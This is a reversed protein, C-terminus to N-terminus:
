LRQFDMTLSNWTGEGVVGDARLNRRRQYAMVAKKTTDGFVGDMKVHQLGRYRLTVGNLWHQVLDVYRGKDGEKIPRNPYTYEDERQVDVFMEFAKDWTAKGVVGDQVLGFLRQFAKVAEATKVGYIGDAEITPISTHRMSILRLWGQLRFVDPGRSGLRLPQAPADIYSGRPAIPATRRNENQVFGQENYGSDDYSNNAAGDFDNPAYIDNRVGNQTSDRMPERMTDRMDREDFNYEGANRDAYSDRMPERMNDRLNGRMSDRMTDSTDFNYNDAGRESYADRQKKPAGYMTKFHMDDGDSFYTDNTKENRPARPAAGNDIYGFDFPKAAVAVDEDMNKQKMLGAAMALANWTRLGVVGDPALGKTRQFSSVSNRTDVGYRGDATVRPVRRDMAAVKNLWDQVTKVAAGNKGMNLPSGPYPNAPPNVGKAAMQLTNWTVRGVIGDEAISYLRQLAMVARKTSAGFRSDAPILPVSAHRMAVARLWNQVKLVNAGGAGERLATGPYMDQAAAALVAQQPVLSDYQEFEAGDSVDGGAYNNPGSYGDEETMEDDFSFGNYGDNNEDYTYYNDQGNDDFDNQMNEDSVYDEYYMDEDYYDDM